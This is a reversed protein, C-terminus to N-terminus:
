PAGDTGSVVDATFGLASLAARAAREATLAARMHSRVQDQYREAVNAWQVGSVNDDNWWAEAAAEVMAPTIESATM